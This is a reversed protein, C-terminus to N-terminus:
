FNFKFKLALGTGAATLLGAMKVNNLIFLPTNFCYKDSAESFYEIERYVHTAFTIGTVGYFFPSSYLEQQSLGLYVLALGLLADSAMLINNKPTLWALKNEGPLNMGIELALAEGFVMLGTGIATAKLFIQDAGPLSPALLPEISGSYDTQSLLNSILPQVRNVSTDAPFAQALFLLLAIM